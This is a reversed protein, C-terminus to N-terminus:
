VAPTSWCGCPRRGTPTSVRQHRRGADAPGGRRLLPARRARQVQRGPHAAPRGGPLGPDGHRPGQGPQVPGALAGPGARTGAQGARGPQQPRQAGYGGLATRPQGATPRPLDGGPGGRPRHRQAGRRVRRGPQRARHGRDPVARRGAVLPGITTHDHIVDFDAASILQNARALHALEPLSEGLRDYQVEDITSVFDAATGHQRGAGFLTVEHGHGALTDVLGHVVQELGGYGPPPVSLWPPVLMAIRLPPGSPPRESPRHTVAM